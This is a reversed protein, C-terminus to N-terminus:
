FTIAKMQWLLLLPIIRIKFWTNIVQRALKYADESRRNYHLIEARRILTPASINERVEVINFDDNYPGNASTFNGLLVSSFIFFLLWDNFYLVFLIPIRLSVDVFRYYTDMVYEIKGTSKLSEYLEIKQASSILCKNVLIDVAEVCKADTYIAHLLARISDNRNDLFDLSRGVLSYM